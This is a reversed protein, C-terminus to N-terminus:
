EDEPIWRFRLGMGARWIWPDLEVRWRVCETNAFDSPDCYASGATLTHDLDGLFRYGVARGFISMQISGIRSADAEFELGPGIGHLTADKEATLVINRFKASFESPAAPDALKVSRHLAGKMEIEERIYEFSPRVRITREFLQFGFALGAGGSLVWRQTQFKVQHGQGQIIVETLNPINNNQENRILVPPVVLANPKGFGSATREHAFAASVDGHIFLRPDFLGDILRPTMLELSGGVLPSVPTDSGQAELLLKRQKEADLGFNDPCLDGDPGDADDCGAPLPPGSIMGTTTTGEIRQGVIDFYLAIGPVWRDM